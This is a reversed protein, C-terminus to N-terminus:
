DAPMLTAIAPPIYGTPFFISLKNKDHAMVIRGAPDLWIRMPHDTNPINETFVAEIMFPESKQPTPRIRLVRGPQNFLFLRKDPAQILTVEGDGAAIPPLDWLIEEGSKTILRLATQGDFYRTGDSDILIPQGLSSAAAPGTAPPQPTGADAPAVAPTEELTTLMKEKKDDMAKWNKEHLAWAGGRKIVPWNNEDWGVSEATTIQWVPLRPTPDPLTPDIVLTQRTQGDASNAKQFFWRGRRDIGVLQQFALEEKQLLPVLTNGIFRRPGQMGDTVIWEDRLALIAHKNPDLDRTLFSPLLQVPRGPRISIWAPAVLSPPQNGRPVSVGAEAYFLAGGDPHRSVLRFKGDVLTMGGLTPQIKNRLLQRIRVRAEAPQDDVIKELIPWLGTGYRTLENYAAVRKAEELDSLQEVLQLIIKEDLDPHDLAALALQVKDDEAAIIQLVSGDLLPVLHLIKEPWGATSDLKTWENNVFRAAGLSGIKGQEWPIWAMLGQWDLLYQPQAIGGADGSKASDLLEHHLETLEPEFNFISIGTDTPVVIRDNWSMAREWHYSQKAPLPRRSAADVADYAGDERRCILLPNWTGKEDVRWHVHVVEDRLLHTQEQHAHVIIAEAPEADARTIWLDGRDACIYILDNLILRAAEQMNLPIVLPQTTPFDPYNSLIVDMYTRPAAPAPPAAQTAPATTPQTSPVVSVTPPDPRHQKPLYLWLGAFIAAVIAIAGILIPIYNRRTQPM